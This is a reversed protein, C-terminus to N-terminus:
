LLLLLLIVRRLLLLSDQENRLGEIRIFFSCPSILTPEISRNERYKKGSVNVVRIHM